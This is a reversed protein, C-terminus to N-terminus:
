LTLGTTERRRSEAENRMAQIVMSCRRYDVHSGNIEPSVDYQVGINGGPTKEGYAGLAGGFGFWIRYLGALILDWPSYFVHVSAKHNDLIESRYKSLNRGCAGAKLWLGDVATETHVLSELAIPVGLSHADIDLTTAGADGVEDIVQALFRAARGVATFRTMLYAIGSSGGPWCFMVYADFSAHTRCAIEEALRRLESQTNATGHVIVLTRRDKLTDLSDGSWHLEDDFIVSGLPREARCSAYIM